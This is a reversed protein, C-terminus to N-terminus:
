RSRGPFRGHLLVVRFSRVGGSGSGIGQVSRVGGERGTEILLSGRKTTFRLVWICPVRPGKTSRLRVKPTVVSLGLTVRWGRVCVTLSHVSLCSTNNKTLLGASDGLRSSGSSSGFSKEGVCVGRQVYVSMYMCTCVWVWEYVFVRVCVYRHTCPCVCECTCVCVYM